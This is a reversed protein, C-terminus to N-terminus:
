ILHLTAFFKLVYMDPILGLFKYRIDSASTPVYSGKKWINLLQVVSSFVQNQTFRFKVATKVVIFNTLQCVITM